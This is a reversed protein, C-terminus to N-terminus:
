GVKQPTAVGSESLEVLPDDMRVLCGDAAVEITPERGPRADAVGFGFEVSAIPTSTWRRGAVGWASSGIALGEPDSICTAAYPKGRVAARVLGGGTGGVAARPRVRTVLANDSEGAPVRGFLVGRPQTTVGSSLAVDGDFDGAMRFVGNRCIMMQAGTYDRLMGRVKFDTPAYSSRWWSQLGDRRNSMWCIDQSEMAVIPGNDGAILRGPRFDGPAIRPGYARPMPAESLPFEQGDESDVLIIGDESLAFLRGRVVASSDYSFSTHHSLVRWDSGDSGVVGVAAAGADLGYVGASTVTVLMGGAAEHAGYVQGPRQNFNEPIFSRLDGGSTTVPDGVAMISGSCVVPRNQWACIVGRPVDVTTSGSISDKKDAYRQAGSVLGWTTPIDPSGLLLQGQIQAYSLGRPEVDINYSFDQFTVFSDDLLLLRLDRAGSDAVDWVYHLYEGTLANVVTFGGCLQRGSEPAYVRRFGPRTCIHGSPLRWINVKGMKLMDLNM